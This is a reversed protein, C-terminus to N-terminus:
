QNISKMKCEIISNDCEKILRRLGKINEIDKERWKWEPNMFEPHLKLVYQFEPKVTHININM